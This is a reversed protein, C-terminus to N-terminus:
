LRALRNTRFCILGVAFGLGCLYLFWDGLRKYLTETPFSIASAGMGEGSALEFRIKGDAGVIMSHAFGDARAITVGNEAARFPTFAAHMAAIFQHPTEPDITPLAIVTVGPLLATQRIIHPYCTDFCINLGVQGAQVARDGPTHMKSEGGFLKRKFYLDSTGSANILAAVNHPFPALDDNYTTVISARSDAAIAMLEETKGSPALVLGAFEPWVVLSAGLAALKGHLKKLVEADSEATQLVGFVQSEDTETQFLKWSYNGGLVALIAISTLVGHRLTPNTAFDAILLNVYWVLFSVMWIGGISAFFLMMPHRYQSLALHAPLQLLLLAELLVAFAAFWWLPKKNSNKDAWSGSLVSVSFGFLGCGTFLWAPEGGFSRNTYFLGLDAFFAMSFLSVLGGFFGWLFGRGRVTWLVPVLAFWGVWWHNGPPLALTLLSGSLVSGVFITLARQM